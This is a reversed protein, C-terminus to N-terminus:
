KDTEKQGGSKPEQEIIRSQLGRARMELILGRNENVYEQALAQKIRDFKGRLFEM